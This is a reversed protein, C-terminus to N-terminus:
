RQYKREFQVQLQKERQNADTEGDDLLTCKATVCTVVPTEPTHVDASRVNVWSWLQDTSNILLFCHSDFVTLVGGTPTDLM